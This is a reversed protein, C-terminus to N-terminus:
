TEQMRACWGLLGPKNESHKTCDWFTLICASNGRNIQASCRSMTRKGEKGLGKTNSLKTGSTCMCETTPTDECTNEMIIELVSTFARSSPIRPTSRARRRWTGYVRDFGKLWARGLLRPPSRSSMKERQEEVMELVHRVGACCVGVRAALRRVNICAM